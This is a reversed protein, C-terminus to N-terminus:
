QGREGAKEQLQALSFLCAALNERSTLLGLAKHETKEHIENVKALSEPLALDVASLQLIRTCLNLLDDVVPFLRDDRVFHMHFGAIARRRVAFDSSATKGDIEWIANRIVRFFQLFQTCLSVVPLRSVLGEPPFLLM